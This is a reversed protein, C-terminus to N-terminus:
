GFNGGIRSFIKKPKWYLNKGCIMRTGKRTLIFGNQKLFELGVINESPLVAKDIKAYKFKMLELGAEDTDAYILGDKLDPVYYGLVKDNKVYIKSNNLYDALLIDRDEGSIKKDLEYIMKRYRESYTIINAKIPSDIWPNERQLFLYESVDRFGAKIYVPKGLDTAILSITSISDSKLVKLLKNVIQFGIGKNRYDNDVIIHAIWSTNNFVISAGIGVIKGSIRTKIPNCFSSLIYFQFDPIIDPWDKPQLNRIEDLDYYTITEFNM